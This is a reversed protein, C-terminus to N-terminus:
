EKELCYNEEDEQVWKYGEKYQLIIKQTRDGVTVCGNSWFINWPTWNYYQQKTTDGWGRVYIDAYYGGAYKSDNPLKELTIKDASSSVISVASVATCVTTLLIVVIVIAFLRKKM